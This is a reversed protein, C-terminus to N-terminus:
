YSNAYTSQMNRARNAVLGIVNCRATHLVGLTQRITSRRTDTADYVVVVADASAAAMPAASLGLAPPLDILVTDYRTSLDKIVSAFLEGVLMDAPSHTVNGAALLSVNPDHTDVLADDISSRGDLVDALGYTWEAGMREALAATHLDAGVVVVREDLDALAQGFNAVTQTKGAGEGDSTVAISRIPQDKRMVILTNRLTRYADTMSPDLSQYPLVGGPHKRSSRLKPISALLPPGFDVSKTSSDDLRDDLMDRTIAVAVGLVLAAIAGFLLNRPVDPSVPNEPLYAPRLVRATGDPTELFLLLDQTGQLEATITSIRSELLVREGGIGDDITRRAENLEAVLAPNRTKLIQDDISDLEATLDSLDDGFRGAREALILELSEFERIKSELRLRLYTQAWANSTAQAKEANDSWAIFRLVGSQGLEQQEVVAQIEVTVAIGNGAEDRAADRYDRGGTYQLESTTIRQLSVNAEGVEPFLPDTQTTRILVQAESKYEPTQLFTFIAVAGFLVLAIAILLRRQRRLIGLYDGLQLEDQQDTM